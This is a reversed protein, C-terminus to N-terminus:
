GPGDGRRYVVQARAVVRQEDRQEVQREQARQNSANHSQPSNSLDAAAIEVGPANIQIQPNEAVIPPVAIVVPVEADVFGARHQLGTPRQSDDGNQRKEDCEYTWGM